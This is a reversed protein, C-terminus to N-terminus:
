RFNNLPGPINPNSMNTPTPGDVVNNIANKINLDTVIGGQGPLNEKPVLGFKEFLAKEANEADLAGQQQGILQEMQSLNEPSFLSQDDGIIDGDAGLYDEIMKIREKASTPLKIICPSDGKPFYIDAEPNQYWQEYLAHFINDIEKIYTIDTDRMGDDEIGIKEDYSLLFIIDLSRMSEKVIRIQSEIFEETFGEVGKDFCWMSYALNDLPCRDYLVKDITNSLQQDVMFDLVRQQTEPTTKSSHEVGEKVLFDRYTEAPSEYVPWVMKINKILTSKGTNSTGSIAIRM